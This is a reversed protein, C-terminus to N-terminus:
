KQNSEAVQFVVEWDAGGGTLHHSITGVPSWEGQRYCIPEDIKGILTDDWLRNANWFEGEIRWCIGEIQRVRITQKDGLLLPDACDVSAAKKILEPQPVERLTHSVGAPDIVRLDFYIDARSFPLDGTQHVCLKELVVTLAISAPTPTSTNTSTATPSPTATITPTDTATETATPTAPAVTLTATAPQKTATSAPSDMEEDSSSCRSIALVLVILVLLFVYRFYRRRDKM